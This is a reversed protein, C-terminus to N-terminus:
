SLEEQEEVVLYQLQEKISRRITEESVKEDLKANVERTIQPTDKGQLAKKEIARRQKKSLKRKRGQGPRTAVTGTEEFKKKLDYVSSLGCGFSIAAEQPTGGGQLFGIVREREGVSMKPPGPNLEVCVLRPPPVDKIIPSNGSEM